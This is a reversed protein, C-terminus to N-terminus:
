AIQAARGLYMSKELKLALSSLADRAPKVAGVSLLALSLEGMACERIAEDACAQAVALLADQLAPDSLWGREAVLECLRSYEPIVPGRKKIASQKNGRQM